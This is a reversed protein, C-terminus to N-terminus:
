TGEALQALLRRGRSRMAPSGTEALDVLLAEVEPRLSADGQALDALAQMAFTKVIKSREALYGTLIEVARAREERDLDLRPLMQAVHWRVEQQEIAAVSGLIDRKHPGLCEPHQASVKECVDAARMRIVPDDSYVGAFVADFLVLDGLVEAVVEDARGISRRDGGSLKQLIDTKPAMETDGGLEVQRVKTEARWRVGRLFQADRWDWIRSTHQDVNVPERNWAYTAQSLAGQSHTFVSVQVLVAFCVAYAIRAKGSHRSLRVIAAATLYTLYPGMDCFFRPGFSHGGWWHRFSSIALLHLLLVALLSVDLKDLERDRAKLLVGVVAALFVPSYVLLGRAPSVLNAAMAEFFAKNTGLRSPLYYSPLLARYTTLNLIAFPVAVAAAVGLFGLIRKRHRVLVYVTLCVASISNTPRIVLAYALPLGAWAIWKPRKEALLVIYLAVSLMLMSPGHQWLARSATSWASTGFCFVGALFASWLRNLSTRCIGYVVAACISVIVSAVRMEFVRSLEGRDPGLMPGVARHLAVFPVSLLSTGLPFFSYIREGIQVVRYNDPDILGREVYEDLDLNGELILSQAVHLTWRSDTSQLVPSYAYVVFSVMAILAALLLDKARGSRNGPL